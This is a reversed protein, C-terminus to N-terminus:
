VNNLYDRLGQDLLNATVRKVTQIIQKFKNRQYETMIRGPLFHPLDSELSEVIESVSAKDQYRTFIIWSCFSYYRLNCSGNRETHVCISQGKTTAIESTEVM